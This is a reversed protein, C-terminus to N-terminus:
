AAQGSRGVRLADLWTEAWYRAWTAPGSCLVSLLDHTSVHSAFTRAHIPQLWREPWEQLLHQLFLGVLARDLVISAASEERETLDALLGELTLLSKRFLLLDGEFRVRAEIVAQDLLRTLWVVGPLAGLRLERLNRQLVEALAAPDPMHRALAALGQQMRGADLTVAGLLLQAVGIRHRKSLRGVLSWDLLALQGEPTVLLNGAHPDAHFLAAPRASFMPRAVLAEALVPALTALGAGNRALRATITDGEIREMATLRPTCFPLLLPIRVCAASAYEAAAEALNRQEVDLKVEHVLLDRVTGFTERYDLAPLDYRECEEDLFEGLLKWIALDEALLKGIGPKLVKFVGHRPTRASSNQWVFPMVVAVSGEALPRSGFQLGTRGRAPLERDLWQLIAARSSRAEFSELRQLQTRFAADLRRDRAMVQGLKHLTPVHHLLAVVREAIPTSGPLRMQAVFIRRLRKAPLRELFFCLGDALVPRYRAYIRPLLHSAAVQERLLALPVTFPSSRKM